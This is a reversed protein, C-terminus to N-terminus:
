IRRHEPKGCEACLWLERVAGSVPWSRDRRLARAGCAEGVDPPWKDGLKAELIALRKEIADIRDPAEMTRRMTKSRDFLGLLDAVWGM